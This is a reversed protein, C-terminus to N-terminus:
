RNENAKEMNIFGEMDHFAFGKVKLDARLFKKLNELQLRNKFDQSRLAVITKNPGIALEERLKNAIFEPKVNEYAM